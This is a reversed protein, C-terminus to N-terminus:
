FPPKGNKDNLEEQMASENEAVSASASSGNQPVFFRVSDCIVILKSQKRGDKEWSDTKLRGSVLAMDGKKHKALSEAWRGFTKCDVFATEEQFAGHKDKYHYNSALTFVGWLNGSEGRRLQPDRVLRGTFTVTSLDSM